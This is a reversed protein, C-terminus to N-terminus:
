PRAYRTCRREACRCFIATRNGRRVTFNFIASERESVSHFFIELRYKKQFEALEENIKIDTTINVRDGASFAAGNTKLIMGGRVNEKFIGTGIEAGNRFVKYADGSVGQEGKVFYEENSIKREVTGTYEGIHGQVRTSLFNKNRVSRLDRRITTATIHEESPRSVAIKRM